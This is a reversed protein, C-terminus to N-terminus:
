AVGLAAFMADKIATHGRYTPHFTRQFLGYQGPDGSDGGTLLAAAESETGNPGGDQTEVLTGGFMLSTVSSKAFGCQLTAGMDNDAELTQDCSFTANAYNTVASSNYDLEHFPNWDFHYLWAAKDDIGTFIGGSYPEKIGEECFRHGNFAPSIDVFVIRKDNVSVVAARIADNMQQILGNITTRTTNTLFPGGKDDKYYAFTAKNCQDTDNNFFLPYGLVYLKFDPDTLGRDIVAGYLDKYGPVDNKIRNTAAAVENQCDADTLGDYARLVCANMVSFFGVDNGGVSVTAFSVDQPIAPIQEDRVKGVQSGSCALFHVEANPGLRGDKEMQPGYAQFYRRCTDSDTYNYRKSPMWAVGSAFSDGLVAFKGFSAAAASPTSSPTTHQTILATSSTKAPQTTPAPATSSSPAAPPNDGPCDGLAICATERDELRLRQIEIGDTPDRPLALAISALLALAIARM